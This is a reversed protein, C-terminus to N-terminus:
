KRLANQIMESYYTAVFDNGIAQVVAQSYKERNVLSADLCAGSSIHRIDAVVSVAISRSLNASWNKAQTCVLTIPCRIEETDPPPLSFENIGAKIVVGGVVEPHASKQFGVTTKETVWDSAVFWDGDDGARIIKREAGSGRDYSYTVRVIPALEAREYSGPVAACALSCNANEQYSKYTLINGVTGMLLALVLAAGLLTGTPDALLWMPSSQILVRGMDKMAVGLHDQPSPNAPGCPPNHGKVRKDTPPIRVVAGDFKLSEAELKASKFVKVATAQLKSATTTPHEFYAEVIRRYESASDDAFAVRFPAVVLGLAVASVVLRKMM